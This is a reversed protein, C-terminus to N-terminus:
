TVFDNDDDDDDDDFPVFFRFDTASFILIYTFLFAIEISVPTDFFIIIISSLFFVSSGSEFFTIIRM